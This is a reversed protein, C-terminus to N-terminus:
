PWLGYKSWESTPIFKGAKYSFSTVSLNDAGTKCTYSLAYWRGNSRFAGGNAVISNNGRRPSFFVEAKARDPHYNNPDRALQLMAEYDCIQDLRTSPDLRKLSAYFRPDGNPSNALGPATPAGFVLLALCVCTMAYQMSSFDSRNDPSGGTVNHLSKSCSGAVVAISGAKLHVLIPALHTPSNAITQNM